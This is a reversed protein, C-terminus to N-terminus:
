KISCTKSCNHEQKCEHGKQMIWCTPRNDGFRALHIHFDEMDGNHEHCVIQYDNLPIVGSWRLKQMVSFGSTEGSIKIDVARGMIHQSDVSDLYCSVNHKNLANECDGDLLTIKKGFHTALDELMLRLKLDTVQVTKYDVLGKGWGNAGRKPAGFRPM